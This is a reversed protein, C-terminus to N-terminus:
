PLTPDNWSNVQLMDVRCDSSSSTLHIHQCRVSNIETRRGSLTINKTYYGGEFRNGVGEDLVDFNANVEMAMDAFSNERNNGRIILGCDLNGESTGGYFANLDASGFEFEIGVSVWEITSMLFNNATNASSVGSDDESNSLFIGWKPTNVWGPTDNISCILTDYTNCVTRAIHFAAGETPSCERARINRFVSRSV